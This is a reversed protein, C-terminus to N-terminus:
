GLKSLIESLKDLVARQGQQLASVDARLHGLEGMVTKHESDTRARLTRVSAPQQDREDIIRVVQAELLALRNEISM